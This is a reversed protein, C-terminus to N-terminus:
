CMAVHWGRVQEAVVALSCDVIRLDTLMCLRDIFHTSRRGFLDYQTSIRASANPRTIRNLAQLLKQLLPEPVITARIGDVTGHFCM